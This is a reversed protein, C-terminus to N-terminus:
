VAPALKTHMDSRTAMETNDNMFWETILVCRLCALGPIAPCSGSQRGGCGVDCLLLGTMRTKDQWVDRRMATPQGPANPVLYECDLHPPEPEDLIIAPPPRWFGYDNFAEKLPPLVEGPSAPTGGPPHSPSIHPFVEHVLDNVNVLSAWTSTSVASSAKRLEGAGMASRIRPVDHLSNEIM